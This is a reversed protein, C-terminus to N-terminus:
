HHWGNVYNVRWVLQGSFVREVYEDFNRKKQERERQKEERIQQKLWRAHERARKEALLAEQRRKEQNQANRARKITNKSVVVTFGDDGPNTQAPDANNTTACHEKGTSTAPTKSSSSSVSTVTQVKPTNIAVITKAMEGTHFVKPM